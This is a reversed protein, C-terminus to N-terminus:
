LNINVRGTVERIRKDERITTEMAVGEGETPKPPFETGRHLM